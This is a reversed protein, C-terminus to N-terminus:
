KLNKLAIKVFEESRGFVKKGTEDEIGTHVDVGWPSIEKIANELNNPNLGGAIIIPKKSLEVIKKSIAWDHTKGTAGSAGTDPDFTDTIFAFVYPEFESVIEKIKEDSYKGIILSKIIKIGGKHLKIVEDISIEGHLQVLDTGVKNLLETVAGSTDLYTIVVHKCIDGLDNVTKAVEEASMDEAHFDLSLPYGLYTFGAKVLMRAEETNLVGAAQIFPTDINEKNFSM